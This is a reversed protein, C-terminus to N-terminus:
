QELQKCYDITYKNIPFFKDREIGLGFPPLKLERLEDISVTGYESEHLCCLGYAINTDPDLETLYWTGIGSPNFLKCVVKLDLEGSKRNARFNEILRQEIEKTLLKM